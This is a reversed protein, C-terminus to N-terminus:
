CLEEGGTQEDRLFVYNDRSSLEEIYRYGEWDFAQLQEPRELAHQVAYRAM